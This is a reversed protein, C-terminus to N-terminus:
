KIGYRSKHEQPTLITQTYFYMTKDIFFERQLLGSLKLRKAFDHDEGFRIDRVGTKRAIETNIVDKFFITRVYDYGDQNTGWDSFRNSHCAIKKTENCNIEELYGVCDPKTDIADLVDVIYTSALMDDDDVQVSYLGSAKNYLQKRKEGISIEKNDSLHIIEVPLGTAQATLSNVLTNLLEEREHVTPILISLKIM